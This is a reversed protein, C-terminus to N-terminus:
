RNDEGKAIDVTWHIIAKSPHNNPTGDDANRDYESARIEVFKISIQM